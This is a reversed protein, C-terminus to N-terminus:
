VETGSGPGQEVVKTGADFRAQEAPTRSDVAQQKRREDRKARRAARRETLRQKFGAM